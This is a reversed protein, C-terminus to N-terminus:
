SCGVRLALAVGECRPIAMIAGECSLIKRDHDNTAPRGRGFTTTLWLFAPISIDAVFPAVSMLPVTFRRQSSTDSPRTM